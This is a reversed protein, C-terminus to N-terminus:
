CALFISIKNGLNLDALHARLIILFQKLGESTGNMTSTNENKKSKEKLSM